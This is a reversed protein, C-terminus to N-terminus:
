AKYVFLYLPKLFKKNSIRKIKRMRRIEKIRKM